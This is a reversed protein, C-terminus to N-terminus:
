HSSLFGSETVINDVKMDYHCRPLARARTIQLDFALGIARLKGKKSLFNDYYGMGYGLRYGQLDFAIGPVILLDMSNSMDSESATPEPIGFKGKKLTKISYENIESFRLTASDIVMPIAVTKMHKFAAEIIIQTRVESGRAMYVGLVSSEEFFRSTIFVEQIQRSRIQIELETLGNRKALIENRLNRKIDAICSSM